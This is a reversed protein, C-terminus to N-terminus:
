AFNISLSKGFQNTVNEVERCLNNWSLYASFDIWEYKMKRWLIEILNLHPSYKPLQFIYLDQEKWRPIQSQFLKSTHIPANDIVVATPATIKQSFNDFCAVAMESNINGEFFYSHLDNDTNMFGLINLRKSRATNLEITEGKLQWAYPISPMLSFGSEDSYYLDIFGKKNLAKLQNLQTLKEKYDPQQERKFRLSKRVRRWSFDFAKILREISYKSLPIEWEKFVQACVTKLSRPSEKVMAKVQEKQDKSLKSKAGQGKRNYLSRFGSAEWANLRDYVSSIHIELIKAIEKAQYGKVNLLICHARIRVHSKKSHKYIRKLLKLSDPNLAKIYKM